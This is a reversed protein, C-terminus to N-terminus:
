YFRKSNNRYFIGIMFSKTIRKNVKFTTVHNFSFLRMVIVSFLMAKGIISKWSYNMCDFLSYPLGFFFINNDDIDNCVFLVM